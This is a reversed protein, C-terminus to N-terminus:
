AAPLGLDHRVIDSQTGLTSADSAFTASWTSLDLLNLTSLGELDGIVKSTDTALTKADAETDAPWSTTILVQQFHKLEAIVPQAQAEASAGTTSATWAAVEDGFTTFGTDVSGVATLYTQAASVTNPTTAPPMAATEGCGAIGLAITVVAATRAIHRTKM